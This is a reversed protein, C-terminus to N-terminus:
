KEGDLAVAGRSCQECLHRGNLRPVVLNPLLNKKCGECTKLDPAPVVPLPRQSWVRGLGAVIVMVAYGIQGSLKWAFPNPSGKTFELLAPSVACVSLLVYPLM